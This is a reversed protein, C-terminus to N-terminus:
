NAGGKWSFVSGVTSYDAYRAGLEINLEQFFGKNSVLPIIAEGFVEKVNYSFSPFVQGQGYGILEGSAYLDDITSAAKEKRYEAGVAFGVAKDSWPSFAGLDGSLSAGAIWQQTKDKQRGTASIFGLADESIPDTTFLNIPVCGNGPDRCVINGSGDDVADLAQAVLGYTVDNLYAINRKTKAYQGFVEWNLNDGIDGRLGMVAQWAKNHYTTTRGGSEVLRRRIGVTTSGDPNITGIGNFFLDRQQDTLYPNDPYIDFTYGFTGTPASQSNVKSDIFSGRGFWEVGDTLEYKALM